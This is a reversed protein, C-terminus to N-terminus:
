SSSEMQQRLKALMSTIASRLVRGLLWGSGPVTPRFQITWTVLTGTGQPALQVCGRHDRIPAGSRLVYVYEKPPSWETVEEVITPGVGMMHRVAGLGNRDPSGEPKLVVRKLASWESMGEHDTIRGWVDEIPAAIVQTLKLRVM